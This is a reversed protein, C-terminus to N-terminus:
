EVEISAIELERGGRLEHSWAGCRPCEPLTRDVDFTAACPVCWWSAPVAEIALTAGEALTGDTVAEFAFQLAEPVAGSMAGVRLRMQCVRSAGRARATEVALRVAETMISVEHMADCLYGPQAAPLLFIM